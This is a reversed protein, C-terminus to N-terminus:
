SRRKPSPRSAFMASADDAGGSLVETKQSVQYSCNGCIPSGDALLLLNTDASVKDNCKACRFCEVHWLGNRLVILLDRVCFM